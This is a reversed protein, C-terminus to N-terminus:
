YNEVVYRINTNSAAPTIIANVGATSLTYVVPGATFVTTASLVASGNGTYYVLSTQRGIGAQYGFVKLCMTGDPVPVNVPSGTGINYADFARQESWATNSSFYKREVAPRWLAPTLHTKVTGDNTVELALVGGGTSRVKLASDTADQPYVELGATPGIVNIGIRGALAGANSEILAPDFAAAIFDDIARQYSLQHGLLNPHVSEAADYLANEGYLGVAEFWYREVDILTVGLEVAVRRYAENVRLHRHSYPISKGNNLVDNTIISTSIPPFLSADPVPAAVSTPYTMPIALAFLSHNNRISHPHPTTCIIPDAGAARIKLCLSRMNNYCAPFGQGSNFQPGQGDNMGFCILVVKPVRPEAMLAPWTVTDGTFVSTGDVSRQHTTFSYIGSRNVRNQLRTSFYIPPADVAATALAAGNGVSSGMGVIQIAVPANTQYDVLARILNPMSGLSVRGGKSMLEIRDTLPNTDRYSASAKANRNLAIPKLKGAVTLAAQVSASDDTAGDAKAGFGLVNLIAESIRNWRGTGGATPIIITGGNDATVDASNWRYTGGGGDGLVYYGRVFVTNYKLALNKLAAITDVQYLVDTALKTQDVSLTAPINLTQSGPDINIISSAASDWGLLKLASPSPLQRSVSTYAPDSPFLVALALQDAEEQLAYLEQKSQQNLQDQTLTSGDVFTQRLTAIPTTRRVRINNTGAGPAPSSVVTTDNLWTFTASLGGVTVTVHAKDLYGFPVTFQTLAGNGSYDTYSYAM